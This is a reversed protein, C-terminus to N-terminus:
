RNTLDLGPWEPGTPDATRSSFTQRLSANLQERHGTMSAARRRDLWPALGLLALLAYAMRHAHQLAFRPRLLLARAYARLAPGPLNGDLLYRANLREAGGQMLRRNQAYLRALDPQTQMWDLLRYIEKGFGAAQAVNKAAPHHRAAAWLQGRAYHLPALRALRLWLHHDLLFHYSPDLFGAQELVSRRMFVAPQCIIRFSMLDLLDWDEFALRNLPRGHPDITIADGYVLGAQSNAQLAAVGASVAGPLYLDDSNLWAIIEGRARSFGKNIAEAQGSDPESVWWVLRDAHSSAYREIIEVSGDTSAGDVVLLEISACDQALISRLTQELFAAQNYSPTIISVLPPLGSAEPCAILIPRRKM